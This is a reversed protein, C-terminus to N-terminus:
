APRIGEESLREGIFVIEKRGLECKKWNMLLGYKLIRDKVQDLREAHEEVTKGWVLIDDMYVRTGEIGSFMQEMTKHFVEPASCLGYPLRTYRYRGFPTNFTTLDRSEEALKVQWFAQSADLKSFVTAGAMGAFIEERTPLQFHERVIVKNLEQSRFM